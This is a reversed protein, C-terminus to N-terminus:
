AITHAIASKEVTIEAKQSVQLTVTTEEVKIITGHIGGSTIVKNGKNLNKMLEDHKKKQQRQPIIMMFYFIAFILIFPLITVWGGGSQTGGTSPPMMAYLTNM